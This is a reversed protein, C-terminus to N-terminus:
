DTLTEHNSASLCSVGLDSVLSTIVWLVACEHVDAQKHQREKYGPRMLIIPRSPHVYHIVALSSPVLPGASKKKKLLSCANFCVVSLSTWRERLPLQWSHDGQGEKNGTHSIILIRATDHFPCAKCVTVRLLFTCPCESGCSAAKALLVPEPHSTVKLHLWTSKNWM